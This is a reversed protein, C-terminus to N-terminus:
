ETVLEFDNKAADTWKNATLQDHVMGNAGFKLSTAQYGLINLYATVQSSTQGTWCYVVITQDTPLSKLLADTKISAKPTYQYAGEIHGPPCAGKGEYDDKSFYNVIYYDNKHALVSDADIGIFGKELMADVRATLIEEATTKGTSLKPYARDMDPIATSTTTFYAGYDSSVNNDWSASLSSNWSSMGFKLSKANYGLLNLALVAHGASQGSYCTVVIQDTKTFNEEAYAVIGGLTANVAGQIHGANYSAASRIDVIKYSALNDHLTGADIINPALTNLYDGGAGELHEVLLNFQNIPEEKTETSSKCGFLALLFLILTLSVFKKMFEGM